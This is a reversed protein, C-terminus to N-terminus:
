AAAGGKAAMAQNIAASARDFNMGQIAPESFGLQRLKWAQGDTCRTSRLKSIIAGAQGKSFAAATDRRVGFKGLFNIQPETAGGRRVGVVNGGVGAAEISYDAAGVLGRRWAPMAARRQRVAEAEAQEAARRAIRAAEVAEHAEALAEGIEVDRVAAIGRARALVEAGADPAILEFPSALDHCRSNDTFDIVDAFPKASGAIAARRAEADPLDGLVDAVVPLPRTGRGVLQALLSRSKTPRAIVVVAARPEDFGETAIM